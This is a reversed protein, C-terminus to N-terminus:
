FLTLSFPDIMTGDQGLNVFVVRDPHDKHVMFFGIFDAAYGVEGCPPPPVELQVQADFAEKIKGTPM